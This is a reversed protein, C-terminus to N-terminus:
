SNSKLIIKRSLARPILKNGLILLKNKYGPIIIAKGKIFGLYAEEAVKSADM